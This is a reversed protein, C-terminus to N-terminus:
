HPNVLMGNIHINNWLEPFLYWLNGDSVGIAVNTTAPSLNKQLLLRTGTSTKNLTPKGHQEGNFVLRPSSSSLLLRASAIQDNVMLSKGIQVGGNIVAAASGDATANQSSTVHLQNTTTLKQVSCSGAITADQSASLNGNIALNKHVVVDQLEDITLAPVDKNMYIGFNGNTKNLSVKWFDTPLSNRLNATNYFAISSESSGESPAIKISGTTGDTDAFVTENSPSCFCFGDTLDFSLAPRYAGLMSDMYTFQLPRQKEQNSLIYKSFPLM